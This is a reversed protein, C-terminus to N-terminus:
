IGDQTRNYKHLLCPQFNNFISLPSLSVSYLPCWTISTTLHLWKSLCALWAFVSHQNDLTGFSNINSDNSTITLSIRRTSGHPVTLVLSSILLERMTWLVCRSQPVSDDLDIFFPNWLVNDRLYYLEKKCILKESRSCVRTNLAKSSHNELFMFLYVDGQTLSTVCTLSLLRLQM